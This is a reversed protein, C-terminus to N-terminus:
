EPAPLVPGTRGAGSRPTPPTPPSCATPARAPHRHPRGGPRSRRRAPLRDPLEPPQTRCGYGADAGVVAAKHTLRALVRRDGAGRDAVAVAGPPPPSAMSGTRP